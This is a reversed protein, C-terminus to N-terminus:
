VPPGSGATSLGSKINAAWGPDCLKLLKMAHGYSVGKRAKATDGVLVINENMRHTDAEALFNPHRGILNGFGILMQVLVAAPDAETHPVVAM